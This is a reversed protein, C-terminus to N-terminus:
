LHHWGRSLGVSQISDIGGSKSVVVWKVLVISNTANRSPEVEARVLTSKGFHLELSMCM